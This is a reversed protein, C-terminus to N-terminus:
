TIGTVTGYYSICDDTFGLFEGSVEAEGPVSCSCVKSESSSAVPGTPSGPPEETHLDLAM